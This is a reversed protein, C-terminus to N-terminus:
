RDPSAWLGIILAYEAGADVHRLHHQGQRDTVPALGVTAPYPLRDGAGHQAVRRERGMCLVPRHSMAPLEDQDLLSAAFEWFDSTDDLPIALMQEHWLLIAHSVMEGPLVEREGDYEYFLPPESFRSRLRYRPKGPLTKRPRRRIKENMKGSRTRQPSYSAFDGWSLRLRRDGCQDAPAAVGWSALVPQNRGEVPLM